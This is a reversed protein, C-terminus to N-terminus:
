FEIKREGLFDNIENFINSGIFSPYNELPRTCSLPSPHSTIFAKHGNKETLYSYKAAHKGMLLWGIKKGKEAIYNLLLDTFNKWIKLHSEPLNKEVTLATNLMFCGKKLWHSIDGSKEVQFGENELEKYINRLSANLKEGKPISFCLGTANGNYYPDQGLIVLKVEKLCLSFTKFINPLSPYIEMHRREKLRDSINQLENLVKEENFFDKWYFPINGEKLFDILSINKLSSLEEKFIINQM